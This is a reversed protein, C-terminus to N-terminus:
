AHTQATQKKKAAAVLGSRRAKEDRREHKAQACNGRLLLVMMFFEWFGEEIGTWLYRGKWSCIRTSRGSRVQGELRM